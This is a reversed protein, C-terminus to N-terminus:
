GMGPAGVMVHVPPEPANIYETDGDKDMKPLKAKAVDLPTIVPYMPGECTAGNSKVNVTVSLMLLEEVPTALKTVLEKKTYMPDEVLSYLYHPPNLSVPLTIYNLHYM